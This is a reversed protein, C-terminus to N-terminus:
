NTVIIQRHESVGIETAQLQISYNGAGLGTLTVEFSHSGENMYGESVNRVVRGLVDYIRISTYASAPISFRITTKDLVPNPFNELTAHTSQRTAVDSQTSLCFLFDVSALDSRTPTHYYMRATGSINGSYTSQFFFVKEKGIALTDKTVWDAINVKTREDSLYLLKASDITVPETLINKVIIAGPCGGLPTASAIGKPPLAGVGYGYGVVDGMGFAVVSMGYEPPNQSTLRHAGPSQAITAASYRRGNMMDPLDTFFSAPIPSGDIFIKDKGSQETVINIFQQDSLFIPDPSIFYAYDNSGRELPHIIALFPDGIRNTSSEASHAILGVLIPYSGEISLPDTGVVEDRFEGANLPEGWVMGNVKIVTNNMSSIIRIIDGIPRRTGQVVFYKGWSTIPPMADAIHDRSTTGSNDPFMFGVPVEVRSHGSYVAISKSSKVLSGTLDLGPIMPDSQIQVGEGANLIYKSSIGKATGSLTQAAPTIIVTDNDDFSAVAFESPKEQSVLMSNPFNVTRYESAENSRPLALFCDATFLKSSMGYCLIPSTSVVHFVMSDPVEDSNMIGDQTPFNILQDSTVRFTDARNAELYLVRNLLSYSKCTITVTATDGTSILFIEQYQSSSLDYSPSENQMFIIMFDTGSNVVTQAKFVSPSFLAVWAILVRLIHKVFFFRCSPQM